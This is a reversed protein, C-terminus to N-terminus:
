HDDVDIAHTGDAPALATLSAALVDSAGSFEITTGCQPCESLLEIANGFLRSHLAMLRANRTGLHRPVDTDADAALLVDDRRWPPQGIGREWLSLLAAADLAASEGRPENGRVSTNM